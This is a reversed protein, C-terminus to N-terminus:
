VIQVIPIKFSIFQLLVQEVEEEEGEMEERVPHSNIPTMTTTAAVKLQMRLAMEPPTTAVATISHLIKESTPPIWDRLSRLM